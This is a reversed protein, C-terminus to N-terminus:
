ENMSENISKFVLVVIYDTIGHGCSYSSIATTFYAFWSPLLVYVISKLKILYPESKLKVNFFKM